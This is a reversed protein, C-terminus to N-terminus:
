ALLYPYINVFSKNMSPEQHNIDGMFGVMKIGLSHCVEAFIKDGWARGM